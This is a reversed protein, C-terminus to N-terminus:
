LGFLEMQFWFLFKTAYVSPHKQLLQTVAFEHQWQKEFM